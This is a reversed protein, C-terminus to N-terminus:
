LGGTMFRIMSVLDERECAMCYGLPPMNNFGEITHALLIEPGQALRPRWEEANGVRPAGGNGTVHCLACSGTWKRLTDASLAVVAPEVSTVVPANVVSETKVPSSSDCGLTCVCIALLLLLRPNNM